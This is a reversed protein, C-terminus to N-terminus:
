FPKHYVIKDLRQIESCLNDIMNLREESVETVIKCRDSMCKYERKWRKAEARILDQKHQLEEIQYELKQRTQQLDQMLKHILRRCAYNEYEANSLAQKYTELSYEEM